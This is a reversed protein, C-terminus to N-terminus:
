LLGVLRPLLTALAEELTVAHQGCDFADTVLLTGM